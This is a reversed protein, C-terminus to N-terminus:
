VWCLRSKVEPKKWFTSRKLEGDRETKRFNRYNVNQWDAYEKLYRMRRISQAFNDASLIFLLKTKHVEEKYM